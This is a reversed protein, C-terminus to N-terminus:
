GLIAAAGAAATAVGGVRWWTNGARLRAALCTVALALTGTSIALATVYAATAPGEAGHALGHIMAFGSALLGTAWLPWRRSMALLIGSGVVTLGIAAELGAGHVPAFPLVAGVAVSGALCAAVAVRQLPRLMAAWASIAAIMLVHDLGTLPHLLGAMFSAGADAHGPHALAATPALTALVILLHRTYRKNM